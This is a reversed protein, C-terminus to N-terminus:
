SRFHDKVLADEFNTTHEMIEELLYLPIPNNRFSAKYYLLAQERAYRSKQRIRIATDAPRMAAKLYGHHYGIILRVTSELDVPKRYRELYVVITAAVLTFLVAGESFTLMQSLTFM